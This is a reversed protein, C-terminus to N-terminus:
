RRGGPLRTRDSAPLVLMKVHKEYAEGMMANMSASADTVVVVDAGPMQKPDASRLIAYRGNLNAAGFLMRMSTLPAGGALSLTPTGTLRPRVIRAAQTYSDMGPATKLGFREFQAAVYAAAIAEDRTASGRGQLEPGALFNEHAKVWEPQVVWKAPAASVPAALGLAAAALMARGLSSQMM